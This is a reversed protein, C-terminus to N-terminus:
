ENMLNNILMEAVTYNEDDVSDIMAKINCFQEDTVKKKALLCNLNELVIHKKMAEHFMMMGGTGTYAVFIQQDPRHTYFDRLSAKFEELDM